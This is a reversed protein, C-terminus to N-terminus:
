TSFRGKIARVQQYTKGKSRGDGGKQWTGDPQVFYLGMDNEFIRKVPKQDGIEKMLKWEQDVLENWRDAVDDIFALRRTDFDPENQSAVLEEHRRHLEALQARIAELEQQKESIDGNPIERTPMSKVFEHGEDTTGGVNIETDPYEKQLARLLDSGLGQRRYDPKVKIMQIHVEGRYYSYDIYGIIQGEKSFSLTLDNQGSHFARSEIHQSIGQEALNM